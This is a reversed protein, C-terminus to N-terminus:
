ITSQVLRMASGCRSQLSKNVGDTGRCCRTRTSKSFHQSYIILTTERECRLDVVLCADFGGFEAQENASCPLLLKRKPEQLRIDGPRHEVLSVEKGM